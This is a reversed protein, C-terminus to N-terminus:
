CEIATLFLCVYEELIDYVTDHWQEPVTVQTFINHYYVTIKCAFQISFQCLILFNCVVWHFAFWQYVNENTTLKKVSEIFEFKIIINMVHLLPRAITETFINWQM